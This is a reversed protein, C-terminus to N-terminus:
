SAQAHIDEKIKNTSHRDAIEPIHTVEHILYNPRQKSEIYTKGVYEGVIGLAVLQIGGLFTIVAILSPYGHVPDGLIFAKFAIWLGFTGGILAAIIGLGM